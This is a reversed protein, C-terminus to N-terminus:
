QKVSYMLSPTITSKRDDCLASTIATDIKSYLSSTSILFIRSLSYLLPLSSPIAWPIARPAASPSASVIIDNILFFRFLAKTYIFYGVYELQINTICLFHKIQQRFIRIFSIHLNRFKNNSLYLRKVKNFIQILTVAGRGSKNCLIIFLRCYFLGQTNLAKKNAIMHIIDATAM